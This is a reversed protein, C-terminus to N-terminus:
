LKHDSHKTVFLQETRLGVPIVLNLPVLLGPGLPVPCNRPGPEVSDQTFRLVHFTGM